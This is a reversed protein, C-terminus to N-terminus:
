WNIQLVCLGTLHSSTQKAKSEQHRTCVCGFPSDTQTGEPLPPPPPPAPSSQVVRQQKEEHTTLHQPLDNIAQVHQGKLQRMMPQSAQTESAVYFLKKSNLYGLSSFKSSPRGHVKKRSHLSTKTRRCYTETQLNNKDHHTSFPHITVSMSPHWLVTKFQLIPM